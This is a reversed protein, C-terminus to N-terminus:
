KIPKVEETIAITMENYIDQIVKREEKTRGKSMDEIMKRSKQWSKYYIKYHEVEEKLQKIQEDKTM